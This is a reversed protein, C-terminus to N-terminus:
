KREKLLKLSAMSVDMQAQSRTAKPHKEIWRDELGRLSTTSEPNLGTIGKKVIMNYGMMRGPVSIRM